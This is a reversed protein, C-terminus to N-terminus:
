QQNHASLRFVTKHRWVEGARLIPQPFDPCNPSNPFFQTELCFGDRNKYAAGEKGLPCGALFNGAYFQIGPLTTDVELVIGTEPSYARAAPRLQGMTGRIVWNHDYGGANQLQVFPADIQAGIPQMERLDMPTHEVSAVEGWPISGADSPTYADAFIQIQQAEVSGSDHGSLNFYAHNTLNCITDQNSVADYELSLAGGELHYVVRVALTGPYGEDGDPSVLSLAVWDEGGDEITWLQKDFGSLGGHLHNAGDNCALTYEEGHLAFRGRGIRNAFRGVVAGLYKEQVRYDELNDFGLVVDYLKGDAGPVKLSRIAAGYTLIECVADGSRLTVMWVPDGNPMTGFQKKADQNM